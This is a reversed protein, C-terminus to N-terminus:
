LLSIARKYCSEVNRLASTHVVNGPASGCSCREYTCGVNGLIRKGRMVSKSDRCRNSLTGRADLGRLAM